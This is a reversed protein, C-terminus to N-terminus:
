FDLIFSLNLYSTAYYGNLGYIKLFHLHLGTIGSFLKFYFTRFLRIAM